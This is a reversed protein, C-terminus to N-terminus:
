APSGKQLLKRWLALQNLSGDPHPIAKVRIGTAQTFAQLDEAALARGSAPCVFPKRHVGRAHRPAGISM